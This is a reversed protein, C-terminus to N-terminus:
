KESRKERQEELVSKLTEEALPMLKRSRLEALQFAGFRLTFFLTERIAEEVAEMPLSARVFLEGDPAIWLENQELKVLVRSATQKAVHDAVKERPLDRSGFRQLFSEVVELTYKQVQESLRYRAASLADTRQFRIGGPGKRASGVLAMRGAMEPHKIWDPAAVEKEGAVRASGEPAPGSCGSTWFVPAVLFPLLFLRPHKM